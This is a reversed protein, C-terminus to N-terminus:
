AVAAEGAWLETAETMAVQEGSFPDISVAVACPRAFPHVVAPVEVAGLLRHLAEKTERSASSDILIQGQRSIGIRPQHFADELSFGFNGLLSALQVIIPVINVPKQGM